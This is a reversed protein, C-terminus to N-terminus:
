RTGREKQEARDSRHHRCGDAGKQKPLGCERATATPKGCRREGLAAAGLTRYNPNAKAEAIAGALTRAAYAGM